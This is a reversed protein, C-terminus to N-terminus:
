DIQRIQSIHMFYYVILGAKILATLLLYPLAGAVYVGIVFEAVTFVALGLFVLWGIRFRKSKSNEV